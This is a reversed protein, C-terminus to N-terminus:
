SKLYAPQIDYAGGRAAVQAPDSANFRALAIKFGAPINSLAAATKNAANGLKDIGSTAKAIQDFLQKLTDGTLQSIDIHLASAIKMFTTPDIGAKALEETLTAQISGTGPLVGGRNQGGAVRGGTDKALQGFDIRNITAQIAAEAAAASGAVGSNQLQQAVFENSANLAKANNALAATLKDVGTLWNSVGSTIKGVVFGIANSALQSGINALGQASFTGKFMNEIGGRFADVAERFSGVAGTAGAGTPPPPGGLGMAFQPTPARTQGAMGIRSNTGLLDLLGASGGRVTAANGDKGLAIGLQIDVLSQLTSKTNLLEANLQRVKTTADNWADTLKGVETTGEVVIGPLEQLKLEETGLERYAQSLAKAAQEIPDVGTIVQKWFAIPDYRGAARGAENFAATLEQVHKAHGTITADFHADSASLMKKTLEELKVAAETMQATMAKYALGIAAAGALVGVVMTKDLGFESLMASLHLLERNTGTARAAMSTLVREFRAVSPGASGAGGEVGRLGDQVSKFGATAESTDAGIKIMLSGLTM